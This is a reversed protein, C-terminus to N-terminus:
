YIIIQNISYNYDLIFVINMKYFKDDKSLILESIIIDNGLVNKATLLKFSQIDFKIILHNLNQMAKVETGKESYENGNELVKYEVSSNCFMTLNIFNSNMISNFTSHVITPIPDIKALQIKCTDKPEFKAFSNLTLLM